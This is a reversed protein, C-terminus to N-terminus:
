LATLIQGNQVIQFRTDSVQDCPSGDALIYHTLGLNQTDRVFQQLKLVTYHNGQEDNVSIRDTIHSASSEEGRSRLKPSSPPWPTSARQAQRDREQDLLHVMNSGPMFRTGATVQIRGMFTAIESSSTCKWSGDSQRLFNKIFSVM